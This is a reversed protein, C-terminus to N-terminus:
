QKSQEIKLLLNDLKQKVEESELRAEMSRIAVKSLYRGLPLLPTIMKQTQLSDESMLKDIMTYDVPIETTDLTILWDDGLYKKMEVTHGSRINILTSLPAQLQTVAKPPTNSEVEHYKIVLDIMEIKDLLSPENESLYTELHEKLSRTVTGGINDYYGADAFHGVEIVKGDTTRNKVEGAPSIYPFRANLSMATSIRISRHPNEVQMDGIFDRFGSFEPIGEFTVPAILAYQGTQTHTTNIVLLPPSTNNKGKGYFSLVDRGLLSNGDSSGIVVKHANEWEKELLRGRDDFSLLGFISQMLDRGLLASLSSSLFNQQYVESAKYQFGNNTNEKKFSFSGGNEFLQEAQSYFMSNGVGGGSAGTLSFLHDSFYTPDHDYLYSHVLFTWLGARSGGGEASVFIVPYKTKTSDILPKREDVWQKLHDDFSSRKVDTTVYDVEYHTFNEKSATYRGFFFCFLVFMVVLPVKYKRGLLELLFAIMFFTILSVMIVSLPNFRRSVEPNFAFIFFLVIASIVLFLVAKFMVARVRESFIRNSLFVFGFFLFGLISNSIFLQLIGEKDQNNLAGLLIIALVMLVALIYFFYKSRPIKGTIRKLWAYIKYDLFLLLVIVAILLITSAKIVNSIPNEIGFLEAANLIALASIAMLLGGLVKPLTKQMHLRNLYKESYGTVEQEVAKGPRQKMLNRMTLSRYIKKDLYYPAYWILLGLLTLLSFYVPIEFNFVSDVQNLILLLDITQPFNWLILYVLLIIVVSVLNTYLESLLMRFWNIFKRIFIFTSLLLAKM